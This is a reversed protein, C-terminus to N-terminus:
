QQALRKELFLFQVEQQGSKGARFGSKRYLGRAVPNDERVELTLKCCGRHRAEAEVAALLAAGIGRGRHGPLVALDHVNLLPRARFTSFGPFGIALGLPREGAWALLVLAGPVQRLAPILRGRTEAPLDQGDGMPDAAYADLLDLVAAAEVPSDLDAPRVEITPPTRQHM